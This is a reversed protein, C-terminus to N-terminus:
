ITLDNEFQIETARKFLSAVVFIVGAMFIYASNDIDLETFSIKYTLWTKYSNAVIGILGVSLSVYSIKFILGEVLSNFPKNFNMIEFIKILFYFIFAKLAVILIILLVFFTYHIKNFSYLNSLDIGMYLNETVNKNVFLSLISVITIAGAKVCYGVFVIWSIVNM